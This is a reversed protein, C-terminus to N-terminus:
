IDVTAGSVSTVANNQFQLVSIGLNLLHGPQVSTDTPDIRIDSRDLHQKVFYPGETEEPTLLLSGPGIAWCREEDVGLGALALAGAAAMQLLERQGHLRDPHSREM